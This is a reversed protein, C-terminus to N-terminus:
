KDETASVIARHEVNRIRVIGLLRHEGGDPAACTVSSLVRQLVLEGLYGVLEIPQPSYVGFQTKSNPFLNSM